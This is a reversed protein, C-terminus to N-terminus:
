EKDIYGTSRSYTVGLNDRMSKTPLESVQGRVLKGLHFPGYALRILRNVRLGLHDMIKRIERNKGEILNIAVWANTADQKELKAEIPAYHIGEVTIGKKLSDLDRQRVNGHVRVRYQRKWGTDPLEMKRALGGDNTLLLLGESNIDLRGVSIVRPLERPLREFITPRGEPDKNTTLLGPPKHYRWVRPDQKSPLVKGDVMVRAGPNVNFAPSQLKEGDVTVRGAEVWREAERRSCLGARALVKAIRDGKANDPDSQYLIKIM